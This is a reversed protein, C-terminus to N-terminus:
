FRTKEKLNEKLFEQLRAELSNEINKVQATLTKEGGYKSQSDTVQPFYEEPVKLWHFIQM